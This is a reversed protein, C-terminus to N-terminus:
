EKPTINMKEKLFQETSHAVNKWDNSLYDNCIVHTNAAPFNQLQVKAADTSLQGAMRQIAKTSVVRDHNRKNKYYYGLFTPCQVRKFLAPTMYKQVLNGLALAGNLRYSKYWANPGSPLFPDFYRLQHNKGPWIKLLQRGAKNELMLSQIGYLHILPSYLILGAIGSSFPKTGALYLGLSGGTSTGMVLVKKGIQQGIKLAYEASHILKQPSLDALRNTKIQGHGHLRSLFLNCGLTEAIHRHVPYGEGQSGKFGHLYVISYPTKSKNNEDQWIIRAEADKKLPRARNEHEAIQKELHPADTSLPPSFPCM